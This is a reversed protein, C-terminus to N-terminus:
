SWVEERLNPYDREIITRLRALARALRSKVTGEAINLAQATEAVSLGLFYRLYIIEQDETALARVALWLQETDDAAGPVTTAATTRVVAIMQWWRTVAALYRQASRRQNAAVNRTIQLLWPRLPRSEDFDALHQYARVFTEQAVDDAEDADGCLLYALRFIATQYETVLALWADEDGQRARRIAEMENVHVESTTYM